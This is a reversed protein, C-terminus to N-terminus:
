QKWNVPTKESGDKSLDRKLKIYCDMANACREFKRENNEIANKVLKGTADWPGKFRYKQSFKHSLVTKGFQSSANAIQLFNQRCKYQTDCNDTWIVDIPISNKGKSAREADYFKILYTLCANHFVHDNKKGRSIKDCFFIWRDTDNM